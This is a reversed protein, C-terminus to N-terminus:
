RLRHPSSVDPHPFGVPVLCTAALLPIQFNANVSVGPRWLNWGTV